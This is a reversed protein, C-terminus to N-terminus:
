AFTFVRGNKYDNEDRKLKRIKKDGIYTQHSSLVEKLIKFNKDTAEGLNLQKIEDDVQEKENIFNLEKVNRM